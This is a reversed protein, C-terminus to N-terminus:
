PWIKEFLPQAHDWAAKLAGPEPTAFRDHIYLHLLEINMPSTKVSLSRTINAFHSQPVGLKVLIDVTESLKKDLSKWVTKGSPTQFDLSGGNHELFYDVSLELFVRLLVAIANPASVLELTRLERYIEAIRNDTVNVPCGRPVVTKRDSPDLKRRPTTPRAKKFESLPIEDLTRASGRAKSMDPLHSKGMDKRVYDLMDQTKMFDGVQKKKTALDTVIKALPKAIEGGPLKSIIRGDKIDIGLEARVTRNELFRELTSTPFKDTIAAREAPSLGARETVLELAQVVPPKGEFRRKALTKWSDVGAGEHGINHRLGLWYRGEERTHLEFCALPEVMSKKFRRALKELITKMPTPMDLGSMVATNTLLKFVAVRRNGELAIYRRPTQNLRLVLFRDMPNMGNDVISQALRVLKTKQDQVIKQLAEQQGAAHSIRPNDHDLVLDAINLKIEPM